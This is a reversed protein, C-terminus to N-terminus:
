SGATSEARMISMAVDIVRNKGLNSGTCLVLPTILLATSRAHGTGGVNARHSTPVKLGRQNRVDGMMPHLVRSTCTYNSSCCGHDSDNCMYLCSGLEEIQTPLKMEWFTNAIAGTTDATREWLM